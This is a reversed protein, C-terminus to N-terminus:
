ACMSTKARQAETLKWSISRSRWTAAQTCFIELTAVGQCPCTGDQLPLFVGVLDHWHLPARAGLFSKFPEDVCHVQFRWALLRDVLSRLADRVLSAAGCPLLLNRYGLSHLGGVYLTALVAVDYGLGEGFFLLCAQELCLSLFRELSFLSGTKWLTPSWPREAVSAMDVRRQYAKLALPRTLLAAM